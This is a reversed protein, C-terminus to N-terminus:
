GMVAKQVALIEAGLKAAQGDTTAKAHLRQLMVLYNQLLQRIADSM